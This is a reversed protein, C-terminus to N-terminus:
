KLYKIISINLFKNKNPPIINKTTKYPHIINEQIKSLNLFSSMLLDGSNIAHCFLSFLRSNLFLIKRMKKNKTRFKKINEPKFTNKPYKVCFSNPGIVRVPKM